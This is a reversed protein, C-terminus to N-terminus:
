VGFRHHIHLRPPTWGWPWPIWCVGIMTTDGSGDPCDRKLYRIGDKCYIFIDCEIHQPVIGQSPAPTVAATAGGIYNQDGSRYLAAEATFGPVSM